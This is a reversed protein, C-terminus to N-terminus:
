FRKDALGIGNIKRYLDLAYVDTMGSIYDLVSQLKLYASASEDVHYQEPIFRLLMKSYKDDPNLVAKSFEHLLSGLIKFGSLEIEVVSQHGYIDSFSIKSCREAAEKTKGELHDILSGQFAGKMIADYHTKFIRTCYGVLKGIVSARILSIQENIDTVEACVENIRKRTDNDEEESLYAMLINKTEQTDLIRLKHADEVDMVQYCIDDAAEVLYVLPHRCYIGPEMEKLGLEKVVRMFMEKESQFFGYKKKNKLGSAYPYKLISAVSSYTLGFGGNRRGKFSHTLIRFANANGEFEILDNWEADSICYMDKLKRGAGMVFYQSLASEGSHGFPPNGMDHALCATGVISGIEHILSNHLKKEGLLFEAINHGLSRGVSAVELSHTLRNHVFVSGPLPFVQTKDQLRRFPSSFILRDYDRQFQTRQHQITYVRDEQGTRKTSLLQNWNM